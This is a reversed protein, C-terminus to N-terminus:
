DSGNEYRGKRGFLDKVFCKLPHKRLQENEQSLLFNADELRKNDQQAADREKQVKGLTLDLREARENAETTEKRASEIAQLATKQLEEQAEDWAQTRAKALEQAFTQERQDLEMERRAQQAKENEIRQRQEITDLKFQMLGAIQEGQAAVKALLLDREKTLQEIQEDKGQQIIVVPNKQRKADLFEVAEDDLFQQRGDMTIHDGLEERYRAVQKRVAEYSINKRKAYERMSIVAM